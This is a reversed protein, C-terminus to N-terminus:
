MDLLPFPRLLTITRYSCPSAKTRAVTRPIQSYFLSSPQTPFTASRAVLARSTLPSSYSILTVKPLPHSLNLFGISSKSDILEDHVELSRRPRSSAGISCPQLLPRTGRGINRVSTNLLESEDTSSCVTAQAHRDLLLEFSRNLSRIYVLRAAEEYTSSVLSKVEGFTGLQPNANTLYRFIIQKM